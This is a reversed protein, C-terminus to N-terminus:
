IVYYAMNSYYGLIQKSSRENNELITLQEM